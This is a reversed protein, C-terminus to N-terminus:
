RQMIRIKTAHFFSIFMDLLMQQLMTHLGCCHSYQHPTLQLVLLPGKGQLINLLPQRFHIAAADKTGQAEEGLMVQQMLCIVTHSLELIAQATALIGLVKVMYVKGTDTTPTGIAQCVLDNRLDIKWRTKLHVLCLVNDLADTGIAFLFPVYYM